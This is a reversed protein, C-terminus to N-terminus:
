AGTNCGKPCRWYGAPMRGGETLNPSWTQGCKDCKLRVDHRDVLTVGKKKLSPATFRVKGTDQKTM